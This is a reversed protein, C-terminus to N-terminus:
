TKPLTEYGPWEAIHRILIMSDRMTASIGDGDLDAAAFVIRNEYGPWQAIYRMLIMSDLMTIEGDGDIDGTKISSVSVTTGTVISSIDSFVTNKIAIQCSVSSVSIDKKAKLTFTLIDRNINTANSFAIVGNGENIDFDLLESTILWQGSVLEFAKTDYTPIIMIATAADCGSISVIFTIEENVKAEFTSAVVTVFATNTARVPINLVCLLAFILTISLLRKM